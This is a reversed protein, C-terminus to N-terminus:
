PYYCTLFDGTNSYGGPVTVGTSGNNQDTSSYGGIECTWPTLPPPALYCIISSGSNAYGAPVNITTSGGGQDTDYYGADACTYTSPPAPLYCTMSGMNAYGPPITVQTSGGGQDSTFYGADECTYTPLPDYYCTLSEGTNSYGAPVTVSTFGNGQDTTNLGEDECTYTELLPCSESILLRRRTWAEGVSAGDVMREALALIHLAVNPGFYPEGAVFAEDADTGNSSSGIGCDTGALPDLGMAAGGVVWSHTGASVGGSLVSVLTSAGEYTDTIEREEYLFPIIRFTVRYTAGAPGGAIQYGISETQDWLINFGQGAGFGTEVCADAALLEITFAPPPPPPPPEEQEVTFGRVQRARDPKWEAARPPPQVKNPRQVPMAPRGDRGVSVEPAPVAGVPEAAALDELECGLGLPDAARALVRYPAVRLLEAMDPAASGTDATCGPPQTTWDWALFDEETMDTARAIRPAGDGLLWWLGADYRLWTTWGARRVTHGRRAVEEAYPWHMRQPIKM